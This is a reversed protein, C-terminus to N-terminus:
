IASQYSAPDGDGLPCTVTMGRSCVVLFLARYAQAALRLLSKVTALPEAIVAGSCATAVAQTILLNLNEPSERGAELFSPLDAAHERYYRAILPRDIEHPAM